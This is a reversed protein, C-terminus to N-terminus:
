PGRDGAGLLRGVVQEGAGELLRRALLSSRFPEEGDRFAGMAGMGGAGRPRFSRRDADLKLQQRLSTLGRGHAVWALSFEEAVKSLAMGAKVCDVAEELGRRKGVSSMLGFEWPGEVRTDEKTAYARAQAVSGYMPEWHSRDCIVTRMHALRRSREMQVFYQLHLRGTESGRELQGVAYKALGREVMTRLYGEADFSADIGNLTGIWNRVQVM